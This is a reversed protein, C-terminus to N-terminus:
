ADRREGQPCYPWGIAINVAHGSVADRFGLVAQRLQDVSGKLALFDHDSAVAGLDHLQPRERRRRLRKRWLVHIPERGTPDTAHRLLISGREDAPKPILFIM